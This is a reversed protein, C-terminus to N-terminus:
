GMHRKMVVVQDVGYAALLREGFASTRLKREFRLLLRGLAGRYMKLPFLQTGRRRLQFFGHAKALEVISETSLIRAPRRSIKLWLTRSSKAHGHNHLILYGDPRCSEAMARMMATREREDANLFYRFATVVDARDAGAPPPVAAAPNAAVFELDPRQGRAIKLMQESVDFGVVRQLGHDALFATIRGTGCAFDFADRAGDDVMERILPALIQRQERWIRADSSDHESYLAAYNQAVDDSQFQSEYVM